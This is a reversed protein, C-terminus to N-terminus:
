PKKEKPKAAANAADTIFKAVRSDRAMFVWTGNADVVDM